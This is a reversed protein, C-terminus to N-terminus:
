GGAGRLYGGRLIPYRGGNDLSGHDMTTRYYRPRPGGKLRGHNAHDREHVPRRPLDLGGSVRVRFSRHGRNHEACPSRKSGEARHDAARIYESCALAQQTEGWRIGGCTHNYNSRLACQRTTLAGPDGTRQRGITARLDNALILRVSAGSQLSLSASSGYRCSAPSYHNL